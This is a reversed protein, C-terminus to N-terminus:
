RKFTTNPMIKSVIGLFDDHKWTELLEFADRYLTGGELTSTILARTFNKSITTTNTKKSSLYPLDFAMSEFIERTVNKCWEEVPDSSTKQVEANSLASHGSCLHVLGHVLMFIQELENANSNIFILPALNDILVFGRFEQLKLKRKKNNNVIDNLMILIGLAELKDILDILRQFECLSRPCLIKFINTTTKLIDDNISASGILSFSNAKMSLIYERYWEQRRQCIYITDLMDASPRSYFNNPTRFDPIPIKEIPVEHLFFFGTPTYTSKAFNELQKLTPLYKGKLWLELKPFKKKLTEKNKMSRDLAWQIIKPNIRELRM